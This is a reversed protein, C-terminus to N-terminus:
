GRPELGPVWADISYGREQWYGVHADEILEVRELWKVSKYAYMKPVLLRAPGGLEESLPKGDLLLAVMVDDMRAQELSLADTYVGDGSYFKVYKAGPKVGALELFTKLPIGEWTGRYVSWGTVCHFDSVQAKRAVEVFAAWDYALPRDVLGGVQFSWQERRFKPIPTVTYIRFSGEAGGGIPPDSEPLPTLLEQGNTAAEAPTLAEVAADGSGPMRFWRFVVGGFLLGLGGAVGAKLFARRSAPSWRRPEGEEEGLASVVTARRDRIWRSRAVSHYIAYPVGLWTLWDHATLAASTWAAPVSREFWLVTGSVCWGILLVMVFALNFRQFRKASLQKWHKAFYPLYAAVIAASLVGAGIHGQKLAVRIPATAGRLAPVYLVIGSAALFLITWANWVHIAKLMKGPKARFRRGRRAEEVNM